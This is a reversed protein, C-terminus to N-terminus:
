PRIVDSNNNQPCLACVIVAHVHEVSMESNQNTSFGLHIFVFNYFLHIYIVPHCCDWLIGPILNRVKLLTHYHGDAPSWVLSPKLIGTFGRTREQWMVALMHTRPSPGFSGEPMSEPQLASPSGSQSVMALTLFTHGLGERTFGHKLHIGLRRIM